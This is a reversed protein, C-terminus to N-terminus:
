LTLRQTAVRDIFARDHEVFIMTPKSSLILNEIQVRSLVDVYNLPEDWLYLHARMCLSAAILVKKKQGASYTEIHKDFQSRRFDLKRLITMFLSQDIGAQHAYDTLSGRLHSTDQPVYSIELGSAVHLRGTHAMEQGMILKLLSSKGSGNKGTVAIREGQPLTFRLNELVTKDGYRISLDAAEVLHRAHHSAPRLLLDEATEINKLLKSKEDLLKQRRRQVNKSRQMMKAAKHGIFGRDAAHAGIKSREIKDSWEGTQRAAQGLRAVEKKLKENHEREYNERYQENVLWSFFNGQQLDINLKNISLVHDVCRDLLARDHSVLIFGSKQSLYDGILTRAEMDLHNTPEDILLFRNDKLFLVALLVKTREGHSLTDFPRHLVDESVSLLSLERQLHWYEYDPCLREIINLTNQTMDGIEFPFYDFAVPAAIRGSDPTLEGTLLKLFTTKGRGNRGIFGLKWDTDISFSVNEFVDEASGPYAFTLNVVDIAAM